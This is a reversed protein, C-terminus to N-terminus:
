HEVKKYYRLPPLNPIDPHFIHIYDGLLWDPRFPSEEYFLSREVDCGYAQGSRFAKFQRYGHHENLLEDPTIDHDSSYRFLWIDADGAKELVAEFPLSVSGSHNDDAWPYNGGADQIM